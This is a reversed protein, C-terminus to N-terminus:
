IEDRDEWALSANEETYEVPGHAECNGCTVYFIKFLHDDSESDTVFVNTSGCFPCPKLIM